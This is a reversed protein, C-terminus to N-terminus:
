EELNKHTNKSLLNIQFKLDTKDVFYTRSKVKDDILENLMGIITDYKTITYKM